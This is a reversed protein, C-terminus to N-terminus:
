SVGAGHCILPLAASLIFADATRGNGRLYYAPRRSLTAFGCSRYLALAAHNDDAVELFLRQAGRRHAENCAAEVLARALGSRRVAPLTGLSLIDSEDAAIRILIFAHADSAVDALLAFTSGDRLFGEFAAADWPQEFCEAHLRALLAADDASATRISIPM